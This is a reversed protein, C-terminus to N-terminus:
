AWWGIMSGALSVSAGIAMFFGIYRIPGGKMHRATKIDLKTDAYGTLYLYSGVNYLVGGLAVFLPYKVGGLLAAPIFVGLTEFLSQHGRQVRNFDDAKKHFGPTAYLNPYPVDYAKRAAMVAGGMITSSVYPAVVCSLIVYGYESPLEINFTM